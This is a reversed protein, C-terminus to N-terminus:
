NSNIMSNITPTEWEFSPLNLKEFEGRHKSSPYKFLTKISPKIDTIGELTYYYVKGASNYFHGGFYIKNGSQLYIQFVPVRDEDVIEFANISHNRDYKRTPYVEWENRVIQAIVIGERNYIATDVFLRGDEEYLRVPIKVGEIRVVSLAALDIGKSLINGKFVRYNNGFNLTYPKEPDLIKGSIAGKSAERSKRLQMWGYTQWIGAGALLIASLVIHIWPNMTINRMPEHKNM